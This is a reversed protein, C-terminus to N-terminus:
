FLLTAHRAFDIVPGPYLGIVLTVALAGALAVGMTRPLRFRPASEGEAPPSYM